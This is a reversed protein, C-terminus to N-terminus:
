YRPMSPDVDLSWQDIGGELNKVKKFGLKRLYNVVRRSREGIHCYFVYEEAPNLETVHNQIQGIPMLKSGRIHCYEFEFPERVDILHLKAGADLLRKLEKASVQFEDDM